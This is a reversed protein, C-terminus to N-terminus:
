LLNKLSFLASSAYFHDPPCLPLKPVPMSWRSPCNFLDLSLVDTEHSFAFIAKGCAGSAQMSVSLLGCYERNQSAPDLRLFASNGEPESVPFGLPTADWQLASFLDVGSNSECYTIFLAFYRAFKSGLRDKSMVVDGFEIKLPMDMSEVCRLSWQSLDEIKKTFGAKFCLQGSIGLIFFLCAAEVKHIPVYELPHFTAYVAENCFKTKGHKTARRSSM